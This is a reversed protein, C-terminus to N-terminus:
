AGGGAPRRDPLLLALSLLVFAPALFWVYRQRYVPLVDPSEESDRAKALSLYLEGLEIPRDGPLWLQGGTRSAIARLPAEELRTRAPKGDDMVWGKGRPIRVKESSDGLGVCHVAIGEVRAKNVGQEWEGDRAPDDGDSLLLIDCSAKSRGELADVALALAAGIRTGKGLDPDPANLDIADISERFHDVDHTLPCALRPRG